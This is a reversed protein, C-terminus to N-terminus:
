KADRRARAPAVTKGAALRAQHCREVAAPTSCGYSRKTSLATVQLTHGRRERSMYARALRRLEAEGLPLLQELASESGESWARLLM